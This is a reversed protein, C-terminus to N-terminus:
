KTARQECWARHDSLRVGMRRIGLRMWRPGNGSHLLRYAADRSLGILRAWEPFSLVKDPHTVAERDALRKDRLTQLQKKSHRKNAM